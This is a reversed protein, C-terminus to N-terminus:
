EKIEHGLENMVIKVAKGNAEEYPTGDMMGIYTEMDISFDLAMMENYDNTDPATAENFDRDSEVEGMTVDDLQGYQSYYLCDPCLSAIVTEQKGVTGFCVNYRQGAEPRKCCECPRHSFFSEDDMPSSVDFENDKYYSEVRQEYEKYEKETMTIGKKNLKIYGFLGNVVVILIVISLIM